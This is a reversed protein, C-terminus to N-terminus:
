IWQYFKHLPDPLGASGYLGRDLDNIRSVRAVRNGEDKLERDRERERKESSFIRKRRVDNARAFSFLFNFDEEARIVRSFCVVLM